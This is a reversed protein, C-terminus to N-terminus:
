GLSVDIKLSARLNCDLDLDYDPCNEVLILHGNLYNWIKNQLDMMVWFLVVKTCFNTMFNEMLPQYHVMINHKYFHMKFHFVSMYLINM